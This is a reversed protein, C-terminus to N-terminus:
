DKLEDNIQKKKLKIWLSILNDTNDSKTNIIYYLNIIMYIGTSFLILNWANKLANRTHYHNNLEEFVIILIIAFIINIVIMIDKKLKM